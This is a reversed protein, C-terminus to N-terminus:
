KPAAAVGESAERAILVKITEPHRALEFGKSVDDLDIVGSILSALEASRRGAIEIATSFDDGAYVTSGQLRIQNEQVYPLDITMPAVPVGLHAVTGGRGVMAIAASVTSEISVCDVVLDLSEGILESVRGAYDLETASVTHDAGLNRAWELKGEDVDTVAIAAAGGERAAILTALGISGAGLVAVTKGEVGGALRIAHVPTALPEIM